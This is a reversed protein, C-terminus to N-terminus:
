DAHAGQLYDVVRVLSAASKSIWMLRTEIRKRFQLPASSRHLRIPPKCREFGRLRDKCHARSYVKLQSAKAVINPRAARRNLDVYTEGSAGDAAAVVEAGSGRRAIRYGEGTQRPRKQV